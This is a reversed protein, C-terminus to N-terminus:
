KGQKLFVAIEYVSFEVGNQRALRIKDGEKCGVSGSGGGEVDLSYWSCYSHNNSECDSCSSGSCNWINLATGDRWYRVVREVCYVRDLHVTIWSTGTSDPLVTSKTDLDLDVAPGATSSLVTNGASHELKVPAIEGPQRERQVSIVPTLM